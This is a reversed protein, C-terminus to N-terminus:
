NNLEVFTATNWVETPAYNIVYDDIVVTLSGESEKGEEIGLVDRVEEDNTFMMWVYREDRAWKPLKKASEEDVIFQVGDIFEHNPDYKYTGSITAEGKFAVKASIDTFDAEIVTMSAVEDNVQLAEFVHSDEPKDEVPEVTNTTSCGVLMSFTVMFVILLFSSRKMKM